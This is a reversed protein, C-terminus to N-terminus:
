ECVAVEEVEGGFAARVVARCIAVQPTPGYIQDGDCPKDKSRVYYGEGGWCPELCPKHQEILAGALHWAESPNHRVFDPGILPDRPLHLVCILTDTRPVRRIELREAPIGQARATHYDLQAGLLDATRIKM